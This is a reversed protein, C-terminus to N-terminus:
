EVEDFLHYLIMRVLRARLEGSPIAKTLIDAPNDKTNVYCTRWEDKACGERVFHYCLSQSKRKLTSEPITTNFLVSQNDGYIYAPGLIPIGMMRLKYRLGRVYETGHKMAVFESGFSSTEVSTQKKSFWTIPACNLYCLFGSRSRRTVTDSAHDADIFIRMVFGRGRPGPANPPAKDSEVTGFESTSWDRREFESFDIDPDSPDFIMEANHNRKLYAFINLLQEMHGERPLVLQSSLMSVECCIDVRGLEVVWRLIGILSQYYAVNVTDLAPTIDVEPRYGSKIPAKAKSPLKAGRSHLHQEVNKIGNQVYQSSSYGSCKIGNDLTVLRIKGGLYITPHGISEEKLGFYEGLSM